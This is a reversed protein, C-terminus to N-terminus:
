EGALAEARQRALIPIFLLTALTLFAATLYLAEL